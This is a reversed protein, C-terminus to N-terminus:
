PVSVLDRGDFYALVAPQRAPAPSAVANLELGPPWTDDADWVCDATPPTPTRLVPVDFPADWTAHAAFSGDPQRAVTVAGATKARVVVPVCPAVRVDGRGAHELAAALTVGPFVHATRYEEPVTLVVLEGGRPAIAGAQAVVHSALDGAPEWTWASLLSLALAAAGAAALGVVATRTRAPVLAAFGLALGVSPLFLLREGNATNLDVALNLAPLLAVLFWAAGAAALRLREEEGGRRLSRVALGAFLLAVLPAAVLWPDRLLEFQPPSLAALAYSALGALFRLPTWPYESYGGAGDLVSSRVVLVGVQAAAMAVPAVWRGLRVRRRAQGESLDQAAWVAIAALLPLVFASEKALAAAGAFTAAAVARVGPRWPALACLVGPLALATALLDTSGSIWAVSEGHRPYVAFAFAGVWAAREGALRRVLAWVELTVVVYLALNALHFVAASGDGARNVGAHWLVWLPRYFHGSAGGLDNHHFAWAVGDYHGLTRLLIFDDALFGSAVAPLFAVAAVLALLGLLIPRSRRGV